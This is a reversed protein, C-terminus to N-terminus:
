LSFRVGLQLQGYDASANSDDELNYSRYGVFGGIGKTVEYSGELNYYFGHTDQLEFYGIEAGAKVPGFKTSGGGVIGPGGDNGGGDVRLGAYELLVHTEFKGFQYTPGVAARLIRIGTNSDDDHENSGEGRLMVHEAVVASARAGLGSFDVDKIGDASLTSTNYYVDLNASSSDGAALAVSSVLLAAVACVAKIKM